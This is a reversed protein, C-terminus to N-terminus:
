YSRGQSLMFKKLESLTPLGENDGKNMVAIAGMANGITASDVISKGELVGSIVGAAFADGAGVTDVVKDVVFGKVITNISNNKVYSGRPGLKVIVNKVGKQLYFDAIEEPDTKGTLIEGEEINPTIYDAFSAIFNITEVMDEKSTWLQPRLNPDFSISLGKEKANRILLMVNERMTTSLSPTIGTVHLHKHVNLDISKVLEMNTNAAASNKRYYFISPDGNRVKSKMYFGTTYKSTMKIYDMNINGENKICDYIYEGFPDKGLQTVYSVTHGLRSLGISFNLEAGALGKSFKTVEKLEGVEDAIFVVMPEGITIVDFM